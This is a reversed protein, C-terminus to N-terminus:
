ILFHCYGKWVSIHQNHVCNFPNVWIRLYHYITGKQIKISQVFNLKFQNSHPCLFMWVLSFDCFAMTQHFKHFQITHSYSLILIIHFLILCSLYQVKCSPSLSIIDPYVSSLNFPIHPFLHFSIFNSLFVFIQYKNIILFDDLAHVM